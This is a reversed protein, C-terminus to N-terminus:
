ALKVEEGVKRGLGGVSMNLGAVKPRVGRLMMGAQGHATGSIQLNHPNRYGVRMLRRWRQTRNLASGHITYISFLVVDGAEAPCSVADEIRYQDPPLHPEGSGRIHELPGLKHSGALFKICGNRETATDVHILADVYQGDQHPYFPYDQHMPFPTGYEPGKAHLTTHHFEVEPGILDAVAGVLRPHIIARAWAEAYNQIGHIVSLVAKEEEEASLYQQDKRWPGSWGKGPTIFTEMVYSLQDSLEQVEEPTFVHRMRLFGNEHYFAIEESTLSTEVQEAVVM